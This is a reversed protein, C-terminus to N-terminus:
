RLAATVRASIGYGSLLVEWALATPSGCRVTAVRWGANRLVGVSADFGPTHGADPDRWSDVDLM